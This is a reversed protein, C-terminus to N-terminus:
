VDPKDSAAGRFRDFLICIVATAFLMTKRNV